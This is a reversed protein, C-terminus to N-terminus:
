EEVHSQKDSKVSTFSINKFVKTEEPVVDQKQGSLLRLNADETGYAGVGTSVSRRECRLDINKM